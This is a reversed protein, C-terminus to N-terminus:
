VSNKLIHLLLQAKLKNFGVGYHRGDYSRLNHSFNFTNVVSVNRSEWYEYLKKNFIAIEENMAGTVMRLFGFVGHVDFWILKPWENSSSKLLNWLPDLYAYKMKEFNLQYHLGVGAIIWNNEQSITKNVADYVAPMLQRNYDQIMEITVNAGNCIADRPLEASHQAVVRVSCDKNTIQHEGTCASKDSEGVQYPISGNFYNDTLIM